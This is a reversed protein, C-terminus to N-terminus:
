EMVTSVSEKSSGILVISFEKINEREEKKKNKLSSDQHAAHQDPVQPRLSHFV